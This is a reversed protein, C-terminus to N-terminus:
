VVQSYSCTSVVITFLRYRPNPFTRSIKSKKNYDTLALSQRTFLMLCGRAAILLYYSRGFRDRRLAVKTPLCFFSVCSACGRAFLLMVQALIGMSCFFPVAKHKIWSCFCSPHGTVFPNFYTM